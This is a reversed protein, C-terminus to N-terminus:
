CNLAYTHSNVSAKQIENISKNLKIAKEFNVIGGFTEDTLRTSLILEANNVKAEITIRRDISIGDYGMWNELLASNEKIMCATIKSGNAHM